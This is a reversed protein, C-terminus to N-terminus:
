NYLCCLLCSGYCTRAKLSDFFALGHSFFHKMTQSEKQSDNKIRHNEAMFGFISNQKEGKVDLNGRGYWRVGVLSNTRLRGDKQM